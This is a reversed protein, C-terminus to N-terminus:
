LFGWTNKYGGDFNFNSSDMLILIDSSEHLEGDNGCM